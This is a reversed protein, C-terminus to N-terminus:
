GKQSFHTKVYEYLEIDLQNQERFLNQMPNIVDKRLFPYLRHVKLRNNSEKRITPMKEDMMGFLGILKEVNVRDPDELIMVVDFKQLIAKATELHDRTLITDRPYDGM